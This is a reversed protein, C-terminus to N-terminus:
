PLVPPSIIMALCALMIFLISSLMMLRCAKEIHLPRARGLGEGIYPKDVLEGQYYNPGGLQVSLAGSFAAEPYGANPSSHRRRDKKAVSLADSGSRFLLFAALSIIFVSIRAPIFNAIDDIRAAAKGFYFYDEDKYGVMSDLTSVMKFAVAMPAGGVAAYFIPSIVGDVLNEAVTEVAARSVGSEDLPDVDRGVIMALTNKADELRGAVLSKRIAAAENELSRASVCFYIMLINVAGALVPSVAAAVVLILAAAVWAGLILSLAFLLGASFPSLSLGRFVREARTVARGMIRIPHLPYQPDALLYDLVFAAPLMFWSFAFMM